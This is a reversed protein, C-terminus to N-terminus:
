YLHNLMNYDEITGIVGMLLDYDPMPAYQNIILKSNLTILPSGYQPLVFWCTAGNRMAGQSVEHGHLEAYDPTAKTLTLYDIVSDDPISNDLMFWAYYYFRLTSLTGPIEWRELCEPSFSRLTQIESASFYGSFTAIYILQRRNELRRTRSLPKLQYACGKPLVRYGLYGDPAPCQAHTYLATAIPDGGLLREYISGGHDRYACFGFLWDWRNDAQEMVSIAEDMNAIPPPTDPLEKHLQYLASSVSPLRQRINVKDM